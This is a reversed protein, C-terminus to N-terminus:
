IMLGNIMLIYFIIIVIGLVILLNGVWSSEKLKNSRAGFFIGLIILMFFPTLFIYDGYKSALNIITTNFSPPILYPLVYTIIFALIYSGISFSINKYKKIMNM